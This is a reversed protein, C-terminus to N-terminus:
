DASAERLQRIAAPITKARRRLWEADTKYARVQVTPEREVGAWRAVGGRKGAASRVNHLKRNTM